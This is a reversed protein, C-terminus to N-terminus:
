ALLEKQLPAPFRVKVRTDGILDRLRTAEAAIETARTRPVDVVLRYAIDGNSRQAWGGVVRGDVWITPGANGNVDFMPGGFAALEGLYWARNKWGMTTSDLAPLFAIWPAATSADDGVD